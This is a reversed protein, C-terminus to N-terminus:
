SDGDFVAEVREVVNVNKPFFAVIVLGRERQDLLVKRYKLRSSTLKSLIEWFTSTTALYLTLPKQHM